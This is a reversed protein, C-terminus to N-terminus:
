IVFGEERVLDGCRVGERGLEDRNVYDKAELVQFGFRGRRCSWCVEGRLEDRGVGSEALHCTVTLGRVSPGWVVHILWHHHLPHFMKRVCIDCIRAYIGAQCM